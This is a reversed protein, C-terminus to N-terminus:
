KEAHFFLSILHCYAPFDQCVKAIKGLIMQISHNGGGRPLLDKPSFKKVNTTNKDNTKLVEQEETAQKEEKGERVIGLKM